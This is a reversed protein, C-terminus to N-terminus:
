LNFREIKLVWNQVGGTDEESAWLKVRATVDRVALDPEFRATRILTHSNWEAGGRATVYRHNDSVPEAQDDGFFVTAKLLGNNDPAYCIAEASFTAVFLAGLSPRGQGLKLDIEAGPLPTWSNRGTEFRQTDWVAYTVDPSKAIRFSQNPAPTSM